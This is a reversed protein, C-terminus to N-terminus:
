LDNAKYYNNFCEILKQASYKTSLNERMTICNEVYFANNKVIEQLDDENWDAKDVGLQHKDIMIATYPVLNIVIPTASVVSEPVSVMNLDQKTDILMAMSEAVLNNLESHPKFGVFQVNNAIDLEKAQTKLKNELEGRGAIILLFDTYEPKAVFRSFKEIISEINKRPILQSVVIFQRKKTKSFHFKQLNVGHEVTENVTNPCYKSIFSKAEESRAVVPINRFFLRAVVNYWFRSPISKMKRNHAALEHWIITKQPAILSAFLSTFTFAAGSSIIDFHDKNKRLFNWLQPQFPLVNPQFIKKMASPLFIVEFDYQEEKRPKYEENTVLTVKHGLEKFGLGFNYIMCDKISDVQPIVNNEATYPISNLLLINM